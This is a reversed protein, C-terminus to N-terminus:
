RTGHCGGGIRVSAGFPPTAGSLEGGGGGRACEPKRISGLECDLPARPRQARGVIYGSRRGLALGRKEGARARLARVFLCPYLPVCAPLCAPMRAVCVFVRLSTRARVFLGMRVRVHVRVRVCARVCSRVSACARARACVCVGPGALHRVDHVADTHGGVVLADGGM